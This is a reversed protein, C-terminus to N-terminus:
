SHCGSCNGGCHSSCGENGSAGALGPSAFGSIQRMLGLHNCQSCALDQGKEGMKCLKTSKTGCNPCKFEYIPM